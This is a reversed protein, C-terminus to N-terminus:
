NGCGMILRGSVAVHGNRLQHEQRHGLVVAFQDRARHCRVFRDAATGADEQLVRAWQVHFTLPWEFRM